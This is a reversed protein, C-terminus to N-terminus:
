INGKLIYDNAMRIWNVVPYRDLDIIKRDRDIIDSKPHKTGIRMTKDTVIYESYDGRSSILSAKLSTTYNVQGSEVLIPYVNIGGYKRPKRKKTSDALDKFYTTQIGTFIRQRNTAWFSNAVRYFFPKMNLMRKRMESIAFSLEGLQLFNTQALNIRKAM